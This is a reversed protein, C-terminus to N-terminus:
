SAPKTSDTIDSASDDTEDVEDCEDESDDEVEEEDKGDEDEGDDDFKRRLYKLVNPNTSSRAEEYVGSEVMHRVIDPIFVPYTDREDEDECEWDFYEDTLLWLAEREFSALQAVEFQVAEHVTEDYVDWFISQEHQLQVCLEEWLSSLGSDEGSLGGEMADLTRIVEKKVREFVSEGLDQVITSESLKRSNPM